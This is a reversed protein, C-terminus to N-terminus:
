PMREPVVGHRELTGQLTKIGEEDPCGNLGLASSNVALPRTKIGEEDPCGNLGAISQL